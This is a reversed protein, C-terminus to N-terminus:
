PRQPPRPLPRPPPTSKPAPPAANLSEVKKRLSEFDRKLDQNERRLSLVENRIDGFEVTPKRGNRLKDISSTAAIRARDGPKLDIFSELPAMAKPDGLVGLGQIAALQVRDRPDTLRRMLEARAAEKDDLTRGLHAILELADIQTSAPWKSGKQNLTEIVVPLFSPDELGQIATMAAEALVGRYSEGRLHNLLMERHEPRSYRGLRRVAAAVIDPNKETALTKLLTGLSIDSYNGTADSLVRQRVRADAQSLSALLADRSEPTDVQRLAGSAELRVGYFSDTQLRKKLLAVAGSDKRSALQKTAILRGIVDSDDEIQAELLPTPLPFEVKALIGFEPDFRVGKPASPLPFHFDESKHQVVIERDIVGFSGKFRIKAPTSFLLVENSLKQAQEITVKALQETESWQYSIKLHPQQAHYVYQDFFADFSRGSLEEIIRVLDETEVVGFRHRELYTKVIQRFLDKGLQHRLMHLIWSGKPYARFSFQEEASKFGRHVIPTLDNQANIVGEANQHMVYLFMDRGYRKEHWLADYYTAFGENLWLHSWDKCTVLDGFWQHALEHAVLSESSRLSEFGDPYLTRENLITMSTNEMGGWHYDSVAVQDYKDWPYPVGIEEEFFGMMDETGAFSNTAQQIQSAPAHFAMPIDRYRGEISKLKGAAL